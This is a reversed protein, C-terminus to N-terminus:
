QNFGTKDEFFLLVGGKEAPIMVRRIIHANSLYLFDEVPRTLQAFLQKQKEKYQSFDPMPPLLNKEQMINLVDEFLPMKKIQYAEIQLLHQFAKNAFILQANANFICVPTSLEKLVMKHLITNQQLQAFFNEEKTTDLSYSITGAGSFSETIKEMNEIGEKNEFIFNKTQIKLPVPLVKLAETLCHNELM